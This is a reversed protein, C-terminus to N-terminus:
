GRVDTQFVKHFKQLLAWKHATHPNCLMRIRMTIKLLVSLRFIKHINHGDLLM